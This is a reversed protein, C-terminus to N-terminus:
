EVYSRDGGIEGGWNGAGRQEGKEEPQTEADWKTEEKLHRRKINQGGGNNGL